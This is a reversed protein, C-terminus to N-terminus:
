FNELLNISGISVLRPEIAFIIDEEENTIGNQYNYCLLVEPWKVEAGLHKPEVIIRVMGNGHITVIDNGVKAGKLWPRKLLMSYSADIVTNLM